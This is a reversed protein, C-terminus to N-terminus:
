LVNGARYLSACNLRHLVSEPAKWFVRSRGWVSTMVGSESSAKALSHSGGNSGGELFGLKSERLSTRWLPAPWGGRVRRSPRPRRLTRNAAAARSGARAQYRVGRSLRMKQFPAACEAVVFRAPNTWLSFVVRAGRRRRERARRALVEGGVRAAGGGCVCAGRAACVALGGRGLRDREGRFM